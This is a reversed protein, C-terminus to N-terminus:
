RELGGIATDFNDINSQIARVQKNAYGSFRNDNGEIMTGLVNIFPIAFNWQYGPDFVLSDLIIEMM